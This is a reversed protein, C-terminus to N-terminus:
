DKSGRGHEQTVSTSFEHATYDIFHALDKAHLLQLGLGVVWLSIPQHLSQVLSYHSLDPLQPFVFFGVSWCVQSFYHMGVIGGVRGHGPITQM